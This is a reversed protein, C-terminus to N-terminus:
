ATLRLCLSRAAHGLEPQRTTPQEQPFLREFFLSFGCTEAGHQKQAAHLWHTTLKHTLDRAPAECWHERPPLFIVEATYDDLDERACLGM